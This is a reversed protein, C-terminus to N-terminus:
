HGRRKALAKARARERRHEAQRAKEERSVVQREQKRTELEAQLAAQAKTSVGQARSREAAERQARKPNVARRAAEDAAVGGRASSALLLLDRLVFQRVDDDHPQGGFVHRAARLVGDQEVEVIGVWWPDDFYVTLTLM